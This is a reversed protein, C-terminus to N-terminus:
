LKRRLQFGVIYGTVASSSGSINGGIIQRCRKSLQSADYSSCDDGDPRSMSTSWDGYRLASECKSSQVAWKIAHGGGKGSRPALYPPTKGDALPAEM